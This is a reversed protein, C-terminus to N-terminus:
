GGSGEPVDESHEPVNSDGDCWDKGNHLAVYLETM